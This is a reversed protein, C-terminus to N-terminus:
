STYNRRHFMTKGSVEFANRLAPTIRPATICPATLHTQIPQRPHIDNVAGNESSNFACPLTQKLSRACKQYGLPQM